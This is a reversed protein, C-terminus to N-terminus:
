NRPRFKILLNESLGSTMHERVGIDKLETGDFDIEFNKIISSILM